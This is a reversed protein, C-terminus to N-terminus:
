GTPESLIRDPNGGSRRQTFMRTTAPTVRVLYTRAILDGSDSVVAMMMRRRQFRGRAPIDQIIGLEQNILLGSKVAVESQWAARAPM